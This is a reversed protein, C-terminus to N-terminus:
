KHTRAHTHTRVTYTNTHECEQLERSKIRQKGKIGRNLLRSPFFNTSLKPLFFFLSFSTANTKFAQFADLFLCKEPYDILKVQSM